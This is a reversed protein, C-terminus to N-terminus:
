EDMRRGFNGYGHQKTPQDSPQMSFTDTKMAQQETKTEM